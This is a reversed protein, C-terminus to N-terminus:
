DIYEVGEQNETIDNTDDGNATNGNTADDNVTGVTGQGSLKNAEESSNDYVGGITNVDMGLNFTPYAQEFLKLRQDMAARATASLARASEAVINPNIEMVHMVANSPEYTPISPEQVEPKVYRTVYIRANHLNADVIASDLLQIEEETLWLFVNNILIDVSKISKKAAVIYDEGNPFLIRVDVFDNDKLNTNLWIFSCEREKYDSALKASIMNQMIPMGAEIDVTAVKGIDDQTMFLRGDMNSPIASSYLVMDETVMAGADIHTLAVYGSRTNNVIFTQLASVSSSGNALINNIRFYSFTAIGFCVLSLLVIAISTFVTGKKNM